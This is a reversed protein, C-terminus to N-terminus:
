AAQHRERDVVTRAIRELNATVIGWGIWRGMGAEGHDRCRDLGYARQLVSIRGEIGARFRLGRRFWRQRETQGREALGSRGTAPIAVRRVGLAEAQALNHPSFVGRDAAVLQPPRGFRQRHAALSPILYPSDQGPTALLKWGSVIGGEVEELWLKRGFEVPKGAKHRMIIQTHPEFLNVIKESAPVTEGRLMRRETQRLARELRPLVTELQGRLHRAAAIRRTRLVSCVRMAQGQTKRAVAILRAYARQM